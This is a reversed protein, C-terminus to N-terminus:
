EESEHEDEFKSHGENYGEEYGIQYGEEYKTEYYNYYNNSDDYGCEYCEGNEGDYKGQEYGENYGEDYADDPTFTSSSEGYLSPSVRENNQIAEKYEKIKQNIYISDDASISTRNGMTPYDNYDNDRSSQKGECKDTILIIAVVFLAIGGTVYMFKNFCGELQNM